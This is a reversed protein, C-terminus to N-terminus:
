ETPQFGTQFKRKMADGIEKRESRAEEAIQLLREQANAIRELTAIAKAFDKIDINFYPIEPTIENAM